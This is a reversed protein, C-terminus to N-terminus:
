SISSGEAIENEKTSKSADAEELSEVRAAAEASMEEWEATTTDSSIKDLVGEFGPLEKYAGSM